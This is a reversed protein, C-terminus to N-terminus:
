GEPGRMVRNRLRFGAYTEDILEAPAQRGYAPNRLVVDAKQYSSPGEPVFIETRCSNPGQRKM